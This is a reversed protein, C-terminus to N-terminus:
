IFKITISDKKPQSPYQAYKPKQSNTTARKRLSRALSLVFDETRSDQHIFNSQLRLMQVPNYLEM